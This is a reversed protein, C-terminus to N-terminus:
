VLCTKGLLRVAAAPVERKGNDADAGGGAPQLRQLLEQPMHGFIAAHGKDDDLWRSGFWLPSM